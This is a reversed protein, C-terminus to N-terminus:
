SKTVAGSIRMEATGKIVGDPTISNAIQAFQKVNASFTRRPTAGSPYTIKFSKTTQGDYAAEMTAQGTDSDLLFLECSFTGSDPIGTKYEKRTSKLDTVPIDESTGSTATISEIEGVEIWATPTASTVGSNITITKGVTNIDVAFTDNTAGTAYNKVVASVGNLTAADAGTFGAFAVVDGNAVGAHGTIAIITPYGVTIATLIEASAASGSIHLTTGQTTIATDGM